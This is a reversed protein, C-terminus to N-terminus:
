RSLRGTRLRQLPLEVTYRVLTAFALSVVFAATSSLALQDPIYREALRIIFDHSLYLMYSTWGIYRLPKWELWAVLPHRINAIVYSFIFYLAVAQLTYRLTNRYLESPVVLTTVLLTLAAFFTLLQLRPPLISSDPTPADLYVPNNTLALVCGWLISDLRADTALYTWGGPQNHHLLTALAFRWLLELTCFGLLLKVQTSRKLEIRTMALLALPFLLYFHEEVALSWVVDMGHPVFAHAHTAMTYNHFYLLVSAAGFGNGAPTHLLFRCVLTVLGYVLYLPVFIRLTRRLYFSGLSITGTADLERRLLTTILYGSLFFFITVGLTAPIFPTVNPLAHKWFVM